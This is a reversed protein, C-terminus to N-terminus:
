KKRPARTSRLPQPRKAKWCVLGEGPASWMQRFERWRIRARALRTWRQNAVFVLNPKRGYGYIAVWHDIDPDRTKVVVLVPRGAAIAQRLNEFTLDEQRSVGLGLSRLARVVRRTGAGTEPRPDVTGYIRQFSQQPRLLKVAMAAAIGGCSYSDIQQYGTLDLTVEGPRTAKPLPVRVAAYGTLESVTDWNFVAGLRQLLSLIM